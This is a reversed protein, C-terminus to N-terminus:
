SWRVQIQELAATLNARASNEEPHERFFAELAEKAEDVRGMRALTFARVLRAGPVYRIMGPLEQDLHEACKKLVGDLSCTEEFWSRVHASSLKWVRTVDDRFCREGLLGSATYRDPDKDASHERFLQVQPRESLDLWVSKLTKHWKPKSVYPYPVYSLSVGYAMGYAGGKLKELKIVETIDEDIRRAWFGKKALAFGMDGPRLIEEFIANIREASVVQCGGYKEMKAYFKEVREDM